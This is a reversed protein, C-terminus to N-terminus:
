DYHSLDYGLVVQKTFELIKLPKYLKSKTHMYFSLNNLYINSFDRKHHVVINYTDKIIYINQTFHFFFSPFHSVSMQKENQFM